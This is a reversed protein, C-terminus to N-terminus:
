KRTKQITAATTKQVVLLSKKFCSATEQSFSIAEGTVAGVSILFFSSCVTRSGPESTGGCAPAASVSIFVVMIRSTGKATCAGKPSQFSGTYWSAQSSVEM